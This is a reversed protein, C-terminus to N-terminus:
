AFRGCFDRSIIAFIGFSQRAARLFTAQFRGAHAAHVLAHRQLDQVLRFHTWIRFLARRADIDRLNRALNARFFQLIEPFGARGAGLFQTREALTRQACEVVDSLTSRTLM